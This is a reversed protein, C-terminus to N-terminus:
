MSFLFDFSFQLLSDFFENLNLIDYKDADLNGILERRYRCMFPITNGEDFLRVINSSTGIDLYQLQSLLQGDTWGSKRPTMTSPIHKAEPKQVSKLPFQAVSRQTTAKNGDIQDDNRVHNGTSKPPQKIKAGKSKVPKSSSSSSSTKGKSLPKRNSKKPGISSTYSDDFSDLEDHKSESCGM